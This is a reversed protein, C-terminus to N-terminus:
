GVPTPKVMNATGQGIVLPLTLADSKQRPSLLYHFDFREVDCILLM